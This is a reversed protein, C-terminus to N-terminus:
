AKKGVAKAAVVDVGTDAVNPIVVDGLALPANARAKRIAAMCEWIKEKPIETKTRVPVLPAAGGEVKVTSTVVREPATVEKRGYIEGRKCTNGTVSLVQGNDDTEVRLPCGLPCSICTLEIVAM